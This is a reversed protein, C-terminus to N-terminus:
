AWAFSIEREPFNAMDQGQVQLRGHHKKRRTGDPQTPDSPAVDTTKNPEHRPVLRPGEAPEQRPPPELHPRRRGVPDAQPVPHARTELLEIIIIVIAVAALVAAAAALVSLLGGVAGSEAVAMGAEVELGEAASATADFIVEGEAAAPPLTPTVPAAPPPAHSPTAVPASSALSGFMPVSPVPPDTSRLATRLARSLANIQDAGARDMQVHSAAAFRRRLGTIRSALDGHAFPGDYLGIFPEAAFASSTRPTSSGLPIRPPTPPSLTPAVEVVPQSSEVLAPSTSPQHELRMIAGAFRPGCSGFTASPLLGVMGDCRPEPDSDARGNGRERTEPSM